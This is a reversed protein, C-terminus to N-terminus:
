NMLNIHEVINKQAELQERTAGPDLRVSEAAGVANVFVEDLIGDGDTDVFETYEISGNAFNLWVGLLQRDFLQTMDGENNNVRLVDYASAFTSADRVEDFVQSMYGVIDLYCELEPQDFDSRGRGTLHKRFQNQWYGASRVEDANGVIIVNATAVPSTGGDDDEAWFTIEYLCADGYTHTQADTVDRPQISPSPFPDPDPPNVLYTTTTVPSGDDWDWSLDLDDSGPDTSRGSIDLPEGVHALFTPVGNILIAGSFDIEATPDVNDIQLNITECTTTDDDSACVEATFVGNDGYVHSVGFTLTADPRVNELAGGVPEVATGDGWDITASLPDLWGPDTVTGSVTVASGEDKPANSGLSVSPAVNNVEVTTDAEDSLGSPDTVRLGVTFVGDQGVMTFTPTAGTADDFAGDNDLDWAFTLTDNDPDSSGTGDLTVNSGENTKYPGNADATPPRNPCGNNSAPGAENPCDDDADPVGDNDKDDGDDVPPIYTAPCTHWLGCNSSAEPNGPNVPANTELNRVEFHLHDPNVGLTFGSHGSTALCEGREVPGMIEQATEESFPALHAYDTVLGLDPHEIRIFNAFGAAPNSVDPFTGVAITVIGDAVACVPQHNIGLDWALHAHFGDFEHYTHTVNPTGDYPLSFPGQAHVAGGGTMMSAVIALALVGALRPVLKPGWFLVRGGKPAAPRAVEESVEPPETALLARPRSSRQGGGRRATMFQPPEIVKPLSRQRLRAVKGIANTSSLSDRDTGAKRRLISFLM